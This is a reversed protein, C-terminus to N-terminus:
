ELGDHRYMRFGREPNADCTGPAWTTECDPFRSECETQAMDRRQVSHLERGAGDSSHCEVECCGVEDARTISGSVMTLAALILGIWQRRM